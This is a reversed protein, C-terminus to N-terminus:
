VYVTKFQFDNTHLWSRYFEFVCYFDWFRMEVCNKSFILIEYYKYTIKMKDLVFAEVSALTLKM